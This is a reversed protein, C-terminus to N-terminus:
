ARDPRLGERLMESLRTLAAGAQPYLAAMRIFGHNMGLFRECRVRVGAEQLARAYGEGEDRLVDCEATVVYSPPLGALSGAALPVARPDRADSDSRLYCEWFWQMNNRTLGYGSSFERYSGTEFNRDTVPYILLQFGIRPGGGDRVRLTLGAALNAGASDGGVALRAPDGEFEAAHEATWRLATECDDLPEPYKAEPALRYDVSVVAAGARASLARCVDDHSELDGLVWGGGHFYVLIPRSGPVPPTYIRIRIGPGIRRDEVAALPENLRPIRAAMQAFTSRLDPLPQSRFDAVPGQARLAERIRPDLGGSGSPPCTVFWSM